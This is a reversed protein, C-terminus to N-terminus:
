LRVLRYEGAFNRMGWASETTGYELHLGESVALRRFELAVKPNIGFKGKFTWRALTRDAGRELLKYEKAWSRHGSASDFDLLMELVERPTGPLVFSLQGGPFRERSLDL